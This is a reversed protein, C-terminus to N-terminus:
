WCDSDRQMVQWSMQTWCCWTALRRSGYYLTFRQLNTPCTITVCQLRVTSWDARSKRLGGRYTSPVHTFQLNMVAHCQLQSGSEQATHTEYRCFFSDNCSDFWGIAIQSASKLKKWFCKTRLRLKWPSCFSTKGVRRVGM